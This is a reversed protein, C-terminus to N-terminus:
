PGRTIIKYGVSVGIFIAIAILIAAFIWKGAGPKGPQENDAM